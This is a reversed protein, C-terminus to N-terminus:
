YSIFGPDVSAMAMSVAALCYMSASENDLFLYIFIGLCLFTYDRETVGKWNKEEDEM